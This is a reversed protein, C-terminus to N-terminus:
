GTGDRRGDDDRFAWRGDWDMGATHSGSLRRRKYLGSWDLRIVDQVRKSRPRRGQRRAARVNRGLNSRSEVNLNSQANSCRTLVVLGM